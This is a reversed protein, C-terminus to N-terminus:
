IVSVCPVQLYVGPNDPHIICKRLPFSFCSKNHDSESDCSTSKTRMDHLVYYFTGHILPVCTENKLFTLVTSLTMILCISLLWRERMRGFDVKPEIKKKLWFHDCIRRCARYFALVNEDDDDDDDDDDNDDDDDDDDDDDGGKIASPLIEM